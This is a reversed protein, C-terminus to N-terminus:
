VTSRAMHRLEAMLAVLIEVHRAISYTAMGARRQDETDAEARVLADVIEETPAKGDIDVLRPLTRRRDYEPVGFRAARILLRPRRLAALSTTM